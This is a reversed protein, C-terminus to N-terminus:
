GAPPTPTGGAAPLKKEIVIAAKSRTLAGSCRGELLYKHQNYDIDFDDFFNVEGGKNAGVTYDKLNVIIGLIEYVDDGHERRAETFLEIEEIGSVRLTSALEQNNAYIRRLNKDKILLM